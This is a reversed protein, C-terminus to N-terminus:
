GFECESLLRRLAAVDLIAISAQRRRLIGLQKLGAYIRTVNERTTGVRSAMDRDTVAVEVGETAGCLRLLESYIRGKVDYAHYEFVRDSLWRTLAVLHQMIALALVSHRALLQMFAANNLKALVVADEAYVSASRPRGDLAALEGFMRGPELIQYTIQRGSAAAINVRARGSLLFFVDNSRDLHGLIEADSHASIKIAHAALDARVELPLARCVDIALLDDATVTSKATALPRM